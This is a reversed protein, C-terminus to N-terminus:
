KYYKELYTKGLEEYYKQANVPSMIMARIAIAFSFTFDPRSGYKGATKGFDELASALEEIRESSPSASGFMDRIRKVAGISEIVRQFGRERVSTLELSEIRRELDKTDSM